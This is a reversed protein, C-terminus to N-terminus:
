DYPGPTASVYVVQNVRNEFEEFTLPRNDLASPLRFGHSVLVEKRSRDGHYMGHLQPFPRTARTSSCSRTRRCTTSCRPRRRARLRGSFPAFIKSAHCYGIERMMELDFMTRQYLRQAEILKGRSRSRRRGGTWSRLIGAMAKERTEDSMVYHTKPYVPLRLYTQRVQGWCRISRRSAKSRM